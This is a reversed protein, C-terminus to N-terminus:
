AAHTHSCRRRIARWTTAMSGVVLGTVWKGVAENRITIGFGRFVSYDLALAAAVGVAFTLLAHIRDLGPVYDELLDVVKLTALGLFAVIAFHYMSAVEKPHGETLNSQRHARNTVVM